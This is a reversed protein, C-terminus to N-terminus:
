SSTKKELFIQNLATLGRISKCKIALWQVDANLLTLIIIKLSIQFKKATIHFVKKGGFFTFCFLGAINLSINIYLRKMKWIFRFLLGSNFIFDILSNTTYM